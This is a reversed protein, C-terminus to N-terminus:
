TPARLLPAHHRKHLQFQHNKGARAGAHPCFAEACISRASLTQKGYSSLNGLSLDEAAGLVLCAACNVLVDLRGESEMIKELLRGIGSVDTVDLYVKKLTGRGVAEEQEIDYSRAGAYVTHGTEALTRAVAFGL